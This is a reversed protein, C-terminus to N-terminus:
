LQLLTILQRNTEWKQHSERRNGLYLQSITTPYKLWNGSALMPRRYAFSLLRRKSNNMNSWLYTQRNPCNYKEGPSILFAVGHIFLRDDLLQLAFAHGKLYRVALHIMRRWIMCEYKTYSGFYWLISRIKKRNNNYVVFHRCHLVHRWFQFWWSYNKTLIIRDQFWEHVTLQLNCIV